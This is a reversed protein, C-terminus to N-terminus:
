PAPQSAPRSAPTLENVVSRMWAKVLADPEQSAQGQITAITKARQAADDGAMVVENTAWAARVIPDPDNDLAHAAAALDPTLGTAPIARVTWTRVIPSPNKIMPLLARCLLGRAVESKSAPDNSIPGLQSLLACTVSISVLQKQPDDSNMDRFIADLDTNVSQANVVVGLRLVGPPQLTIVQGGLGLQPADTTGRPATIISFSNEFSRIPNSAFLNGVRGQDLRITGRITGRPPLRYVRQLNEVAYMGMAKVDRVVDTVGITTKIAGDAGVPLPRNSVNTIQVTLTMPDGIGYRPQLDGPSVLELDRPQRYVTWFGTPIVSISAAYQAALKTEPLSIGALRAAQAIQLAFLGAPQQRWLDQFQRVAEDHKGQDVLSRALGLQALPDAEALPALAAQAEAAKGQRLLWWGRLRALTEDKAGKEPALAAYDNLWGEVDRSTVPMVSLEIWAASALNALNKEKLSDLLRRRLILTYDPMRPAAPRVPAPGAGRASRAPATAPPPSPETSAPMEVMENAVLRAAVLASLPADELQALQQLVPAAEARRAAIALEVAMEQFLDAAPQGGDRQTQEISAILADAAQRHLNASELLRALALWADPQYPSAALLAALAGVRQDPANEAMRVGERLAGVNVDNLALAQRLLEKAAPADGRETAIRALRVAMESRIQPDLAQTDFAAKYIRAREDLAETAGAVFDLYNVQAVLDGPDNRILARLASRETESRHAAHAAEALLRLIRPDEPSVRSALELLLAAREAAEAAPVSPDRTYSFAEDVMQDALMHAPRPDAPRTTQAFASTSACCATFLM